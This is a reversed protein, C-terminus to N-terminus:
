GDRRRLGAPERWRLGAGEGQAPKGSGCRQQPRHALPRELGASKRFSREEPGRVSMDLGVCYGAVHDMADKSKVNKATKGIVVVLEAEYDNRKEAWNLSIGPHPGSVSSTAKLFLGLTEVPRDLGELQKNHVNHHVAPDKADIEVHLRYNAPAAMVKSPNAIPSLLRVKGLDYRKAGAKLKEAARCVESLRAVLPDGPPFPWRVQPLCEIAGTVDIVVGDEVLGLRDDDFRCLRM